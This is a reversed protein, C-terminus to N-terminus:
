PGITQDLRNVNVLNGESMQNVVVCMREWEFCNTKLNYSETSVGKWFGVHWSVIVHLLVQLAVVSESVDRRMRQDMGGLLLLHLPQSM